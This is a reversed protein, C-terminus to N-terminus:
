KNRVARVPNGYERNGSYWDQEKSDFFLYCAGMDDGDFTSLWYYGENAANLHDEGFFGAYPIFISNGNPGVVRYGSVGRYNYKEWKCKKLLENCEKKTPLRWAGGWKQRAVDYRTGSIDRGLNTNRYSYTDNTYMSKTSTEGWAYYNGKQEPSSAGINYGAWNVSLGLDVVQSTSIGKNYNSNYVEQSVKGSPKPKSVTPTPKPKPTEAPKPKVDNNVPKATVKDPVKVTVVPKEQVADSVAAVEEVAVSDALADTLPLAVPTSDKVVAPKDAAVKQSSGSGATVAHNNNVASSDPIIHHRFGPMGFFLYACAAALAVVLILLLVVVGSRGKSKKSEEKSYQKSATRKDAAPAAKKAEVSTKVPTEAVKAKPKSAQANAYETKDSAPANGSSTAFETKESARAANPAAAFATKESSSAANQKAAFETKDSAPANGSSAAFETKESPPIPPPTARFQTKDSAPANGSSATFETKESSPIPPPTARFQTKDSAPASNSAMVTREDVANFLGIAIKSTKNGSLYDLFDGISQPRLRKGNAMSVEVTDRICKTVTEPLPSLGYDLIEPATPPQQGSLMNYLVAGLSYIDIAPSFAREYDNTYMEIPLFSGYTHAPAPAAGLETRISEYVKSSLYLHNNFSTLQVDGESNIYISDTNVNRHVINSSHLCELASAVQRIYREADKESLAGEQIKKSLPVGHVYEMVYYATNNCKFVDLIPVLNDHYLRSVVCTDNIFDNKVSEFLSSWKESKLSVSGDNNRNCLGDIFVERIVVNRDLGTQFALYFVSYKDCRIVSEIRYRGAELLFGNQLHM